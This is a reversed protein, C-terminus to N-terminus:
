GVLGPVAAAVPQRPVGLQGSASATLEAGYGAGGPSSDNRGWSFLSGDALAALSHGSAAV